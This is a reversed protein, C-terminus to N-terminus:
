QGAHGGGSDAGGHGGGDHGGNGISYRPWVEDRERKPPERWFARFFGYLFVLLFIGSVVLAATQM